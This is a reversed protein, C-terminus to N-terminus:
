QHLKWWAAKWALQYRSKSSAGFYRRSVEVYKTCLILRSGDRDVEGKEGRENYKNREEEILEDLMWLVFCPASNKRSRWDTPNLKRKM